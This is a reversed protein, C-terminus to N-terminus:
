WRRGRAGRVMISAGIVLLTALLALGGMWAMWYAVERALRSTQPPLAVGETGWLVLMASVPVFALAVTYVVVRRLRAPM